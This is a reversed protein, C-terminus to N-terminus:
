LWTQGPAVCFGTPPSTRKEEHTKRVRQLAHVAAESGESSLQLSAEQQWKTACTTWTTIQSISPPRKLDMRDRPRFQQFCRGGCVVPQIFQHPFYTLKQKWWYFCKNSSDHSNYKLIARDDLTIPRLLSRQGRSCRNLPPEGCCAAASLCVGSIRCERAMIWWSM